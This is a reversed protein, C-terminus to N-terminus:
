GKGSKQFDRPEASGGGAKAAKVTPALFSTIAPLMETMQGFSIMKELDQIDLDPDDRLLSVYCLELLLGEEMIESDAGKDFDIKLISKCTRERFMRMEWMKFCIERPRDLVIVPASPDKSTTKKVM